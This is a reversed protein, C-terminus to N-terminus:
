CDRDLPSPPGLQPPAQHKLSIQNACGENAANRHIPQMMLCPWSGAQAQKPKSGLVLRLYLLNTPLKHTWGNQPWPPPSGPAKLIHSGAFPFGLRWFFNNGAADYMCVYVPFGVARFGIVSIQGAFINHRKKARRQQKNNNERKNKTNDCM